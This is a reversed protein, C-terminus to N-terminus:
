GPLPGRVGPLARAVVLGWGAIRTPDTTARDVQARYLQDRAQPPPGGVAPRQRGLRGRGPGAGVSGGRGHLPDGVQGRVRLPPLATGHGPERVRREGVLERDDDVLLVRM